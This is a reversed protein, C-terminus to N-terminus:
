SHSIHDAFVVDLCFADMETKKKKEGLFTQNLFLIKLWVENSLIFRLM